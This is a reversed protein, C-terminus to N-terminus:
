HRRYLLIGPAESGRAQVPRFGNQALVDNWLVPVKFTEGSGTPEPSLIVWVDSDPRGLRALAHEVWQGLDTRSEHFRSFGLSRELALNGLHCGFQKGTASNVCFGERWPYGKRSLYYLLTVSRMPPMIVADGDAVFEAVFNAAQQESPWMPTSAATRYYSALKSALPVLLLTAAIGVIMPGRKGMVQLKAFGLGVLLVYAPFVLMDYRGVVYLPRYLSGLWIMVLPGLLSAWLWVKLRGLCAISLERDGWPVAACFALIGLVSVGLLHLTASFDIHPFVKAFVYPNMNPGMGLVDLSKPIALAPPTQEWIYRIWNLFGQPHANLVFSWLLWPAYLLGCSMVAAWYRRWITRDQPTSPHAWVLLITPLLAIVSFYHSYVAILAALSVWLWPIVNKHDIARWLLVYASMLALSALAYPRAEQSFYIHFPAVAAFLGSWFAVRADFLQRGAWLVTVVFLTGCLASLLRITTESTGTVFVWFRLALYYLPPSNELRLAEGIGSPITAMLFSFAEDWWLEQEGIRYVRLLLALCVIGTVIVLGKRSWTCKLSKDL